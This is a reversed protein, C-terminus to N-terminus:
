AGVLSAVNPPWRNKGFFGFHQLEHGFASCGVLDGVTETDADLDDFGVAFLDHGFQPNM